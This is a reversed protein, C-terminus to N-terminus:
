RRYEGHEIRDWAATESEYTARDGPATAEIAVRLRDFRTTRDALDALHALHEGLTRRSVAAQAKLRDRVENSVKITTTM